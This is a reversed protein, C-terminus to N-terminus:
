AKDNHNQGINEFENMRISLGLKCNKNREVLIKKRSLLLIEMIKIFIFINIIAMQILNKCM